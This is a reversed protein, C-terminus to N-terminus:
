RGLSRRYREVDEEEMIAAITRNNMQKMLPGGKGRVLPFPCPRAEASAKPKALYTSLAATVLEKLKVGEIAARAKVQKFLADPIELTTKM